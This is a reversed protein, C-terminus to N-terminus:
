GDAEADKGSTDSTDKKYLRTVTAIDADEARSAAREYLKSATTTLPLEVGGSRAVDLALRADKRGLTTSWIAEQEGTLIGEFRYRLGPAVMPSEGLLERLQDDDLGGARGDAFAESLAVVGDLLLLNVTVKAVSALAPRDYRLRKESLRPFLPEVAAALDGEAGVLYIAEGADVQNPSGLVPMAVFRDFEGALEQTLTPAVTSTEVYTADAGLASRIGEDGLAVSRVADDNALSVLVLDAGGVAEGISHAEKAGRDVLEPAKGPTRNWITVEHDDLLRGAIAKGMRGMGLVALRM